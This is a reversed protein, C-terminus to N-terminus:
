SKGKWLHEWQEPCGLSAVSANHNKCHEDVPVRYPERRLPIPRAGVLGRAQLIANARMLRKYNMPSPMTSSFVSPQNTIVGNVTCAPKRWEVMAARLADTSMNDLEAIYDAQAEDMQPTLLAPSEVPPAQTPAEEVLQPENLGLDEYTFSVPAFKDEGSKTWKIVGVRMMRELTRVSVGLVKAAESKNM